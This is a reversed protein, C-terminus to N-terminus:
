LRAVSRDTGERPSDVGRSRQDLSSEGQHLLSRSAISRRASPALAECELISLRLHPTERVAQDRIFRLLSPSAIDIKFLLTKLEEFCFHATQLFHKKKV